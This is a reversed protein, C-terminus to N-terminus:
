ITTNFYRGSLIWIRCLCCCSLILWLCEPIYYPLFSFPILLLAFLPSYFYQLGRIFPSQYIDQHDKLKAAAHLFVDFDVGGMANITFNIVLFVFLLTLLIKNRM